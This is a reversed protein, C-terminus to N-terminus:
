LQHIISAMVNEPLSVERYIARIAHFDLREYDAQLPTVVVGAMDVAGPSVFIRQYGKAYYAAPRHKRRLVVILRWRNEEYVGIVNLLPEKTQGLENQVIDLLRMFEGSLAGASKSELVLVSRDAHDAAKYEVGSIKKVRKMSGAQRVLPLVKAPVMQFHLHDPASAGCQPGNYFIAYAPAADRILRIMTDLAATLDQPEHRLASVTFHDKFIPAPNGLILYDNRYLIGKQADPLNELCLFCPRARISADDVAAGSSVARASNYQLYVRYDGALQRTQVSALNRCGRAFDPWNKKQTLALARCLEPLSEKTKEPFRTGVKADRQKAKENLRQRARIEETRLRDKYFNNQNQRDPSLDADTNNKWRRCWYLNQYIRGVRYERTINLAAAYDEGYSVNPFGVQMVIFRDFARPAGMGNVRLLNNHGNQRTWERHDILGPPIKKLRENVVTYSGVVMAFKGRRMKDVINQLTRPSSYLDDSDLQVVYRGCHPSDIAENWCGGIGLDRRRPILHFLHPYKAAYARLLETTGDTSHNDAVIINFPFDTKQVLASKLADTITKKRNLVPIVISAKWQLEEPRDVKQTRPELYAGIRKLHHTVIKELHKQRRFNEKAVYAFHAELKKGSRKNKGPIQVAAEYLFEPVHIVRCDTSIKLRLDYWAADADSPLSGYKKLASQAAKVSLIILHGFNFDDRISGPQYDVLPHKILHNRERLSFDSYVMGAHQDTFPKLFHRLSSERISIDKEADTLLLYKCSLKALYPSLNKIRALSRKDSSILDRAEKENNVPFLLFRGFKRALSKM